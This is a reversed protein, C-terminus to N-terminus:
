TINRGYANPVACHLPALEDTEDAARGHQREGRPRLLLRPFEVSNTNKRRFAQRRLQKLRKVLPEALKTVDFPLVNGKFDAVRFSIALPKGREGTLQHAEFDIRDQGYICRCGLGGLLRGGDDRNDNRTESIGYFPM